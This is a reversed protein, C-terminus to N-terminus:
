FPKAAFAIATAPVVHFWVLVVHVALCCRLSHHSGASRRRHFWMSGCPVVCSGRPECTFPKAASANATTPVVHFWVPVVRVALCCRSSHRSGASRRRHFWMSGCPVVCSGRPECTFPKAASANATTPVVHFWAPVVHNTLFSQLSHRSGASRRGHFWM